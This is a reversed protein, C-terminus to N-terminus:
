RHCHASENLRVQVFAAAAEAALGASQLWAGLRLLLSAGPPLASCLGGLGDWDGGAFLAAALREHAGTARYLAAAQARAGLNSCPQAM